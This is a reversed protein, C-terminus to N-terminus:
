IKEFIFHGRGDNKAMNNLKFWHEQFFNILKYYDYAYIHVIRMNEEPLIVFEDWSISITTKKTFTIRFDFRLSGLVHDHFTSVYLYFNDKPIGLKLFINILFDIQEWSKLYECYHNFLKLDDWVTEWKKLRVDIWLKDWTRLINNLTSIIKTPNLNGFINSFMCYIRNTKDYSLRIIENKFDRSFFDACILKLKIWINEFTKMSLDLMANSVDVWFYEIDSKLNLNEFIFKETHSDWCGLSILVSANTKWNSFINTIDLQSLVDNNIWYMWYLSDTKKEKYFLQSWEDLYLFKQDLYRTRFSEKLQEELDIDSILNYFDVM